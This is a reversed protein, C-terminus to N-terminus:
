PAGGAAELYEEGRSDIEDNSLPRGNGSGPFVVYTVGSMAGGKTPSAPIGLRKALAISGEGIKKAPGIDGVIAYTVKGQYMVAAVDGLKLGPHKKAFGGPLVIYPTVTPNLSVGHRDTLATTPQGDPDTKWASGAGDADIMMSSTYLVPHASSKGAIPPLVHIRVAPNSGGRYTDTSAPLKAPDIQGLHTNTIPLQPSALARKSVPPLAKGIVPM